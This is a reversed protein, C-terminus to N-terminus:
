SLRKRRAALLSALGTGLLLMSGPEPVSTDDSEFEITLGNAGFTEELLM